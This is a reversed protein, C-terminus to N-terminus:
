ANERWGYITVAGPQSADDYGAVHGKRESPALTGQLFVPIPGTCCKLMELEAQQELNLSALLVQVEFYHIGDADKVTWTADGKLGGLAFPGSGLLRNM